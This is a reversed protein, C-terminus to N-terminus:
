MERLSVDCPVDVVREIDLVRIAYIPFLDFDFCCIWSRTNL